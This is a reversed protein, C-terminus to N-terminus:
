KEKTREAFFLYVAAIILMLISLILLLNTRDLIEEFFGAIAIGAGNASIAAVIYRSIFLLASVFILMVGTFRKTM